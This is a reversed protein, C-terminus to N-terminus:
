QRCILLLKMRSPCFTFNSSISLFANSVLCESLRVARDPFQIDIRDQFIFGIGGRHWIGIGWNRELSRYCCLIVNASGAPRGFCLGPLPCSELPVQNGWHVCGFFDERPCLKAQSFIKMFINKFPSSGTITVRLDRKSCLRAASEFEAQKENLEPSSLQCTNKRFYVIGCFAIKVVLRLGCKLSWTVYIHPLWNEWNAYELM